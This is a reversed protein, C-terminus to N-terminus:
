GGLGDIEAQFYEFLGDYTLLAAHKRGLFVTDGRWFLRDNETTDLGKDRGCVLLFQAALPRPKSQQNYGCGSGVSGCKTNVISLVRWHVESSDSLARQTHEVRAGDHSPHRMDAKGGFASM